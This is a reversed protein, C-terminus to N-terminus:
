FLFESKKFSDNAFGPFSMWKKELIEYKGTNNPNTKWPVTQTV